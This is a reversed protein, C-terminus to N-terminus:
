YSVTFGGDIVLNVGTIFDSTESILFKIAQAVEQPKVYRGLPIVKVEQEMQEKYSIASEKAKEQIRKQHFDTLVVGPSIVNISLGQFGLEHSLAKAYTTWMRRIVCASGAEKQFQVSTTGSIVVVKGSPLLSSLAAKLVELPGTFTNRFVDFWVDEEQLLGKGYFQPRPTILVMGSVCSFRNNLYTKFEGISVKDSYDLICIEYRHPYSIELEKKLNELKFADRGTLVLHYDSALLRVAASGLAGSSGTVIITKVDEAFAGVYYCRSYILVLCILRLLLSM